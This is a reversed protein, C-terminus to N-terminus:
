CPLSGCGLALRASLVVALEQRRAGGGLPVLGPGADARRGQGRQATAAAPPCALTLVLSPSPAPSSGAPFWATPPAGRLPPLPSVCPALISAAGSAVAGTLRRGRSGARGLKTEGPRPRQTDRGGRLAATRCAEPGAAPAAPVWLGRTAEERRGGCERAM